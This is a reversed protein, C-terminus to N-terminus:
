SSKELPKKESPKWAKDSVQRGRQFKRLRKSLLQSLLGKAASWVVAYDFVLPSFDGNSGVLHYECVNVRPILFPDCDRTWVGPEQNLFALKYGADEVMDRVQRSYNGNPYSFLPCSAQLKQQIAERSLVIEQEARAAPITTLIEHTSTHSGFTVGGAHLEAIQEWTMTRDVEASSKLVGGSATMQGIRRERETVPLEKLEEIAREISTASHQLGDASQSGDLAAATREPWFPLPTGARDPVIFIAIPVHYQCAIPYAAIANDSWGDDFTVALKLKDGAKWEPEQALNAFECAEAAYKLFGDFTSKRVIMGGLSATQQL